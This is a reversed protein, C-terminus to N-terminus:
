GAMDSEAAGRGKVEVGGDEAEGDFVGCRRSDRFLDGGRVTISKEAKSPERTGCTGKCM